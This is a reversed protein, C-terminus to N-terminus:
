SLDILMDIVMDLKFRYEDMPNVSTNMDWNFAKQPHERFWPVFRFRSAFREFPPKIHSWHERNVVIHKTTNFTHCGAIIAELGVSSGNTFCNRCRMVFDFSSIDPDLVKVDPYHKHLLEIVKTATVSTPFKVPMKTILPAFSRYFLDVNKRCVSRFMMTIGTFFFISGFECTRVGKFRPYGVDYVEVGPCCDKHWSVWPEGPLLCVPKYRKIYSVEGIFSWLDHLGYYVRKPKLAGVIKSIGPAKDGDNLHSSTILISERDSYKRCEDLISRIDKFDDDVIRVCEYGLRVLEDYVHYFVDMCHYHNKFIFVPDGM